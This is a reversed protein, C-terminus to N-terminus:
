ADGVATLNPRAAEGQEPPALKKRPDVVEQTLAAMQGALMVCRDLAENRQHALMNIRGDIEVPNM